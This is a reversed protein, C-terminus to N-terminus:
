FLLEINLGKKYVTEKKLLGRGELEALMGSRARTSFGETEPLLDKMVFFASNKENGYFAKVLVAATIKFVPLLERDRLIYDLRTLTREPEPLSRFDPKDSQSTLKANLKTNEKKEMQPAAAIVEEVDMQHDEVVSTEVKVEVPRPKKFKFTM